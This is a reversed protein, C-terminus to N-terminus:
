APGARDLRGLHQDQMWPFNLGCRTALLSSLNHRANVEMVKYQGDRRDKQVRHVLLGLLERRAPHPEGAEGSDGAFRPFSLVRRGQEAIEPM